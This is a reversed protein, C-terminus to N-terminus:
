SVTVRTGIRVFDQNLWKADDYFLRICGRSHNYFGPLTSAHIAYGKHYFMCYPMPAGGKAILPYTRSYCDAGHMRYIKFNGLVSACSKNSLPCKASGGSAPGWRVLEGNRDYAAFAFQKLNIMLHRHGDAKIRLAFPSFNLFELNNWQKPVLIWSRYKLAVNTRNLRMIMSRETPNPFLKIWTDGSLVKVCQFHPLHCLTKAYPPANALRHQNSFVTANIKPTDYVKRNFLVSNNDKNITNSVAWSASCLIFMILAGFFRCLGM